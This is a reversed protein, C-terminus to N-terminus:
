KIRRGRVGSSIKFTLYICSIDSANNGYISLLFCDKRIELFPSKDYLFFCQMSYSNRWQYRSLVFSNWQYLWKLSLWQFENQTQTMSNNNYRFNITTNLIKYSYLPKVSSILLSDEVKSQLWDLILTLECIYRDGIQTWINYTVVRLTSVNNASEFV